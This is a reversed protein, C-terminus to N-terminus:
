LAKASLVIHQHANNGNGRLMGLADAIKEDCVADFRNPIESRDMQIYGIVDQNLVLIHRSRKRHKGHVQLRLDLFLLSSLVKRNRFTSKACRFPSQM